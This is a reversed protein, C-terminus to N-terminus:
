YHNRVLGDGDVEKIYQHRRHLPAKRGGMRVNGKANILILDHIYEVFKLLTLFYTKSCLIFHEVSTKSFLRKCFNGALPSELIIFCFYTLIM